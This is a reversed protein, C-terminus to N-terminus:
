GFFQRAMKLHEDEPLDFQHMERQLRHAILFRPSIMLMVDSAERRGTGKM